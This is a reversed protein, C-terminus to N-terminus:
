VVSVCKESKVSPMECVLVSMFVWKRIEKRLASLLPVATHGHTCLKFSEASLVKARRTDWGSSM